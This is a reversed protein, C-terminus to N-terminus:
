RARRFHSFSRMGNYGGVYLQNEECEVAISAPALVSENFLASDTVSDSAEAEVPTGAERPM